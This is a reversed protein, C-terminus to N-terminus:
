PQPKMYRADALTRVYRTRFPRNPNRFSQFARFIEALEGEGRTAILKEDWADLAAMNDLEWWIEIEYDGGAVSSFAGMFRIGDPQYQKIREPMTQMFEKYAARTGDTLTFENIQFVRM